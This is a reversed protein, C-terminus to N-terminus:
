VTKNRKEHEIAQKLGEIIEEGITKPKEYGKVGKGNLLILMENVANKALERYEEDYKPNENFVYRTISTMHTRVGYVLEEYAKRTLEAYHEKQAREAKQPYFDCQCEDGNCKCPRTFPTALCTGQIYKVSKPLMEGTQAFEMGREFDTFYRIREKKCYCDCKKM